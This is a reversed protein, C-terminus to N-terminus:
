EYRLAEVPDFRSAWWATLLTSSFNVAITFFAVMVVEGPEVKAPLTELSYVTGPFIDFGLVSSLFDQIPGIYVCFLVGSLLGLSLGIVGLSASAMFFVRLISGRTAGLTRLVAIDRSKNKVLMILGSVINLAALAVVFMLILRMVNREVVLADALGQSNTRWDYITVEPGLRSRLDMMVPVTRDPDRIRIELEDAGDNRGFLIQAQELPMYILGSDFEAMGVSFIGGVLFSKRRPTLGFPTQAGQPSLLSIALGQVVGLQSALRDGVLITPSEVGEFGALSGGPRISNAVIHLAALDARPIGRVVVGAAVGDASALAQANIIPTVHLVGPTQRALRALRDIESRPLDRVDVFVHGNVGLIRALLTERFGNMVSMTVILVFVALLIAMVSIISILAVGGHQRKARLYRGALMREFLGFPPAAM